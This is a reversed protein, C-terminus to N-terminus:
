SNEIQIELQECFSDIAQNIPLFKVNTFEEALANLDANVEDMFGLRKGIFVTGLIQNKYDILVERLAEVNL